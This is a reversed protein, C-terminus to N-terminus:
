NITVACVCHEDATLYCRKSQPLVRYFLNYYNRYYIKTIRRRGFSRVPVLNNIMASLLM